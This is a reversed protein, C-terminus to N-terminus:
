FKIVQRALFRFSCQIHGDFRDNYMREFPASENTCVTVFRHVHLVYNFCYCQEHKGVIEGFTTMKKFQQERQIYIGVRHCWLLSM